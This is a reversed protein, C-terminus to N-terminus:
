PLLYAMSKGTGCPSDIMLVGEKSPADVAKVIDFQSPRFYANTDSVIERLANLAETYTITDNSFINYESQDGMAKWVAHAKKLLPRKDEEGYNGNHISKSHHFSKAVHDDDMIITREVGLILNSISCIFQRIQLVTPTANFGMADRM